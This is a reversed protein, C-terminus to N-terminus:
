EFRVEVSMGARAGEPLAELAVLVQYVVDGGITDARPSIVKVKGPLEQSLAKVWVGVDQGTQVNPADRESLDTTEVYLQSNDTIIFLVRGPTVLDGDSVNVASVVGDFPAKIELEALKARAATEKDQAAQLTAQASALLAPDPGNQVDKMHQDAEDYIAQALTLEADAKSIDKPTPYNEGQKGTEPKKGQSRMWLLHKLYKVKDQADELDEGKEILDTQAKATIEAAERNVKDLDNLATQVELQAASVNAQTQEKGGIVALIEGKKVQGGISVDVDEVYSSSLFGVEAEQLPKLVGSATFSATSTTSLDIASGSNGSDLNITPAPTPTNVPQGACGALIVLIIGNIILQYKM